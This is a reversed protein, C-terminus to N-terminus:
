GGGSQPSAESASMYYFVAMCLLVFNKMWRGVSPESRKGALLLHLTNIPSLPGPSLTLSFCFNYKLRIIALHNSCGKQNSLIQFGLMTLKCQQVWQGLRLM